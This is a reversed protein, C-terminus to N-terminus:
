NRKTPYFHYQLQMTASIIILSQHVQQRYQVNWENMELLIVHLSSPTALSLKLTGKFMLHSRQFWVTWISMIGSKSTPSSGYVKINTCAKGLM